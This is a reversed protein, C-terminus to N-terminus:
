LKISLNNDGYFADLLQKAVNNTNKSEIPNPGSIDVNAAKEVLQRRGDSLGQNYLSKAIDDINDILARHSHLMEYNWSGNSDVYQDFFEDLRSNSAKMQQKYENTLAFDFEKDPGLEFTLEKINDAEAEMLSIWEPTIPSDIEQSDNKQLIPLKYSERLREIEKKAKGADIKLQLNSLKIEDESYLDEDVKYKSNILLNVEENSLNPYETQTQIKIATLDDMESANISQYRFWDMPDRGTESVFDAIAKVRDDIDVSQNASLLSSLDDVSTLNLGLRESIFGAVAADFEADSMEANNDEVLAPEPQQISEKQLSGESSPAETETDNETPQSNGFVSSLDIVSDKQDESIPAVDPTEMNLEVPPEGSILDFGLNKLGDELETSM